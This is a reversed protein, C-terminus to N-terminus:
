RGATRRRQPGTMLVSYPLISPGADHCDGGDSKRLLPHSVAPAPLSRPPVRAHAFLPPSPNTTIYSTLNKVITYM